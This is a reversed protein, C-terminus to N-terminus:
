TSEREVVSPLLRYHQIFEKGHIMNLLNEVCMRALTDFDQDVTSIRPHLYNGTPINDIGLVAVDEPIKYGAESIARYVGVAREDGSVFFADPKRKKLTEVAIQYAKEVTSAGYCVNIEGKCNKTAEVFGDVRKQNSGYRNDGVLFDINKYGHTVLYNGGKYGTQFNDLSVTCLAPDDSEGFVVFPINREKLAKARMDNPICELLIVGDALGNELLYYGDTEDSMFKSSNSPSMVVKLNNKKAYIFIYKLMLIHWISLHEEEHRDTFVMIVDTRNGKLGRALINVQYGSEKIAQEVKKRTRESVNEGDNLVRSVTKISVNCMKAIDTITVKKRKEM